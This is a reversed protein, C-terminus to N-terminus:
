LGRKNYEILKKLKSKLAGILLDVLIVGGKKAVDEMDDLSKKLLEEIEIDSKENEVM